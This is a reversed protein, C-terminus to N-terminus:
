KRKSEAEEKAKMEKVWNEQWELLFKHENDKMQQDLALKLGKSGGDKEVPPPIKGLGLEKAHQKMLRGIKMALLVRFASVRVHTKCCFKKRIPARCAHARRCALVPCMKLPTERRYENPQPHWPPYGDVLPPPPPTHRKGHRDIFFALTPFKSTDSHRM